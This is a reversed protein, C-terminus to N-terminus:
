KRLTIRSGPSWIICINLIVFMLFIIIKEGYKLYITEEFIYGPIASDIVGKDGLPIYQEVMGFSNIVASIGTSAVRFLPKGQEIARFRAALLHQYPGTSKGYWADTTLNVIWKYKIKKPKDHDPFITEYCIIPYFAPLKSIKINKSEIGPSFDTSQNTVMSFKLIQKFPVYEGFPVLHM